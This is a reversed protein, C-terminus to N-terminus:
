EEGRLIWDVSKEFRKQLRLLVEVSPALVGREIKSLQSQTIGISPAFVDQSVEGRLERIRGGIGELDARKKPRRPM